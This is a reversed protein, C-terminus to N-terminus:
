AEGVDFRAFRRVKINEGVIGVTSTILDAITKSEDRVFPQDLLVSEEYFKDLKGDLEASKAEKVQQPVDDRTVYLPRSACIHMALDRALRQFQENKAVFDTECSLEVLVGMKGGQHIYHGIFGEHVERDSKKAAIQQGRQAIVKRAREMDGNTEALARRCDMVPANTAERLAKVEDASPTYTTSM